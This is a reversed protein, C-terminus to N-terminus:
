DARLSDDSVFWVPEGEKIYNQLEFPIETDTPNNRKYGFGQTFKKMEEEIFLQQHIYNEVKEVDRILDLPIFVKIKTLAALAIQAEM